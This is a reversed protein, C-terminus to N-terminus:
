LVWRRTNRRLPWCRNGCRWRPRASRPSWIRWSPWSTTTCPSSPRSTLRTTPWTTPTASCPPSRTVWGSGDTSPRTSCSSRRRRRCICFVTFDKKNKRWKIEHMEHAPCDVIKIDWHFIKETLYNQMCNSFGHIWTDMLMDMMTLGHLKIGMFNFLNVTISVTHYPYDVHEWVHKNYFRRLQVQYKTEKTDLTHSLGTNLDRLKNQRKKIEPM